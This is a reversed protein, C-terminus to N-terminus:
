RDEDPFDRVEYPVYDVVEWRVLPVVEFSGDGVARRWIVSRVTRVLGQGETEEREIDARRNYRRVREEGTPRRATVYVSFVSSQTKLLNGLEGQHIPEIDLWGDVQSLDDITGFYKYAVIAEGYEDLPPDEEEDEDDQPENRYEIVNDWFDYPLDRDDLLARLVAVPSTNVNIRGDPTAGSAAMM